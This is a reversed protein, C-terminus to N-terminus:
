ADDHDGDDNLEEDEDDDNADDNNNNDGTYNQYNKYFPTTGKEHYSKNEHGLGNGKGNLGSTVVVDVRVSWWGNRKM